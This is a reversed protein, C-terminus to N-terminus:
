YVSDWDFLTLSFLPHSHVEDTSFPLRVAFYSDRMHKPTLEAYPLNPQQTGRLRIEKMARLWPTLNRGRQETLTIPPATSNFRLQGIHFSSQWLGKPSQLVHRHVSKM